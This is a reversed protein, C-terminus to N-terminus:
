DDLKHEIEVVKSDIEYTELIVGGDLMDRIEIKSGAGNDYVVALIGGEKHVELKKVDGTLVLYDQNIVDSVRNYRHLKNGQSFYTFDYVNDNAYQSNDDVLGPALEINAYSEFGNYWSSMFRQLYYTGSDDKLVSIVQYTSRVQEMYMCDMNLNGPDFLDNDPDIMVTPILKYYDMYYGNMANVVYRKNKEDFYVVHAASAAFKDTIYYDGEAPFEWWGDELYRGPKAYLKGGALMPWGYSDTRDNIGSATFPFELSNTSNFRDTIYTDLKMSIGDFYAGGESTCIFMQNWGLYTNWNFGINIPTGTLSVKAVNEFVDVVHDETIESIFDFEALGDKEKLIAWGQSFPTVVYLEIPKNYRVDHKTDYVSYVLNQLGPSLSTLMNLDKDTSITDAVWAGSGLAPIYWAYSRDEEPIDTIIDGYIVVNSGIIANQETPLNSFDVGNLEIYDYDGDDKICSVMVSGILLSYIIRNVIKM